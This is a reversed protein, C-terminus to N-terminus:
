WRLSSVQFSLWAAEAPIQPAASAAAEWAVGPSRGLCLSALHQLQLCQWGWTCTTLVEGAEEGEASKLLNLYNVARKLSYTQGRAILDRLAKLSMEALAVYLQTSTMAGELPQIGETRHAWTWSWCSYSLGALQWCAGSLTMLALLLQPGWSLRDKPIQVTGWM